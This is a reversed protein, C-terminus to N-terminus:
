HPSHPRGQRQVLPGPSPTLSVRVQTNWIVQPSRLPCDGPMKSASRATTLLNPPRYEHALEEAPYCIAPLGLTGIARVRVASLCSIRPCMLQLESNERLAVKLTIEFHCQACDQVASARASTYRSSDGGAARDTLRTLTSELSRIIIVAREEGRFPM